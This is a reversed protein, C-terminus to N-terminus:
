YIGSRKGNGNTRGARDGRSLEEFGGLQLNQVGERAAGVKGAVGLIGAEFERLVLAVERMEDGRDGSGQGNSLMQAQQITAAEVSRLHTEIEGVRQKFTKLQGDMEDVADSFFSVLDHSESGNKASGFGFHRANQQYQQPLMLVDVAQFTHRASEWDKDTLKRVFDVSEADAELASEVGLHKRAAFDVSDPVLSLQDNHAPIIATIDNCQSQAVQIGKDLEEIM